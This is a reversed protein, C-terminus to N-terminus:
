SYSCRNSISSSNIKITIGNTISKTLFKLVNGIVPLGTELLPGLFNGLFAWSQGIKHLQTKSLKINASSYNAFAKRLKLVQTNTLSLNHPFNNWWLIVMLILKTGNKIGSKLENLQSNSLEM